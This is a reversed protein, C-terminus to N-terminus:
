KAPKEAPKNTPEPISGAKESGAGKPAPGTQPAAGTPPTSGSQSSGASKDGTPPPPQGQGPQAPAASPTLNLQNPAMRPALPVAVVCFLIWVIAVGITIKTFLDGAKTGFASQGGMGGLAGALGGGKGKQLLVLIIVVVATVVLMFKLFFMGLWAM